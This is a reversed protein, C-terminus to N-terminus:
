DGIIRKPQFKSIRELIKGNGMVDVDDDLNELAAFRSSVKFYYQLPGNGSLPRSTVSTM